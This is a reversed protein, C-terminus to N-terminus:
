CARELQTDKASVQLPKEYLGSVDAGAIVAELGDSSLFDWAKPICQCM